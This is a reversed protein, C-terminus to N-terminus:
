CVEATSVPAKGGPVRAPHMWYGDRDIRHRDGYIKRLLAALTPDYSTLDTDSLIRRGNIVGLKNNNFWYQTGEAWYEQVTTEAYEGKWLGKKKAAAYAKEVEAYFAPDTQELTSLIGHSFEHVLISEGFYRDNGTGFLNEVGVSTLIGGMGRARKNWYQQDTLSGIRQQYHKRECFTLRPDDPTPKKWDRQEPLDTTGESQAMIAIRQGNRVMAAAIDPRNQLMSRIMAAAITLGADPVASSAVIPIGDAFIVKTYFPDLNLESPPASIETASAAGCSLFALAAFGVPRLSSRIAGMFYDPLSLFVESIVAGLGDADPVMASYDYVM